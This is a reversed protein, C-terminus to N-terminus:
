IRIFDIHTIKLKFQHKQIEKIKVKIKKNNINLILKKFFNKKSLQNIIQNHNLIIPIEKKKKGYVIGPLKNNKRMNRNISKSKKNRIKANITLM